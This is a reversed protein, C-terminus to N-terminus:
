PEARSGSWVNSLSRWCGTVPLSRAHPDSHDSCNWKSLTELGIYYSPALQLIAALLVSTPLRISKSPMSPALTTQEIHLVTHLRSPDFFCSRTSVTLVRPACSRLNFAPALDAEWRITPTACRMQKIARRWMWAVGNRRQRADSNRPRGDWLSRWYTWAWGECEWGRGGREEGSM